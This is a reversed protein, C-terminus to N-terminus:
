GLKYLGKEMAVKQAGSSLKVFDDHVLQESFLGNRVAVAQASSDLQVLEGFSLSDDFYGGVIVDEQAIDVLKLLENFSLKREILKKSCLVKVVEYSQVESLQAPSLRESFLGNELVHLQMSKGFALFGSVSIRGEPKQIIINGQKIQMILSAFQNESLGSVNITKGARDFFFVRGMGKVLISKEAALKKM